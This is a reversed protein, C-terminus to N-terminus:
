FEDTIPACYLIVPDYLTKPQTVEVVLFVGNAVDVADVVVAVVIEVVTDIDVAVTGSYAVYIM